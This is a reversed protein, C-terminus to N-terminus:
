FCETGAPSRYTFQLLISSLGFWLGPNSYLSPIDAKCISLYSPPADHGGIAPFEQFVNMPVKSFNNLVSQIQKSQM